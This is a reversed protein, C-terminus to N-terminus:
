KNEVDFTLEVLGWKDPNLLAYVKRFEDYAERDRFTISGFIDDKFCVLTVWLAHGGKPSNINIAM